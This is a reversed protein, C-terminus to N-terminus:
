SRMAFLILDALARHPNWDPDLIIVVPSQDAKYGIGVSHARVQTLPRWTSAWAEQVLLCCTCLTNRTQRMTAISTKSDSHNLHTGMRVLHASPEYATM